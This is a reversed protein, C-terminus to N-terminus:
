RESTNKKSSSVSVHMCICVSFNTLLQSTEHMILRWFISVNLMGKRPTSSSKERIENESSLFLKEDIENEDSLLLSEREIPLLRPIISPKISCYWERHDIM